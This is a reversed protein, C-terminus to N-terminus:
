EVKELTGGDPKAADPEPAVYPEFKGLGCSAGRGIDTIVTIIDSNCLQSLSTKYAFRKEFALGPCKRPLRNVLTKRGAMEFLITQGDLVRTTRIAHLSVCLKAEDSAAPAPEAQEAARAGANALLVCAITCALPAARRNM